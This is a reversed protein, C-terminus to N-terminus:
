AKTKKDAAKPKSETASDWLYKAGATAGALVLLSGLGGVGLAGAIFLGAATAVGSGAADKATNRLAEDRTIKNEKADKMNKAASLAGGVLAGALGGTVAFRTGANIFSASTHVSM